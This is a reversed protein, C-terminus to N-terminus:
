YKQGRSVTKLFRCEVQRTLKWQTAGSGPPWKLDRGDWEKGNPLYTYAGGLEFDSEKIQETIIYIDFGHQLYQQGRRNDFGLIKELEEPSRGIVFIEQTVWGGLRRALARGAQHPVVKILRHLGSRNMAELALRKQKKIHDWPMSM